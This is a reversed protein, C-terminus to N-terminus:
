QVVGDGNRVVIRLMRYLRAVERTLEGIEDRARDLKGQCDALDQKALVLRRDFRGSAFAIIVMVLGALPVWVLLDSWLISGM